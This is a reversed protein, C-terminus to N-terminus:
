PSFDVAVRAHLPDGTNGLRVTVTEIAGDIEVSEVAEITADFWTELNTSAEVRYVLGREAADSRRRYAIRLKGGSLSVPTAAEANSATNPDLDFAYELLNFLQDREPDGGPLADTGTLGHENAAWADYLQQPGSVPGLTYGLLEPSILMDSSDAGNNLGQIALINEGSTLLGAFESVDIDEFSTADGDPNQDSASSNWIPEGPNANRRALEIGNLWAIFGDDYKMRLVMRDISAPNTPTFPVRLYVTANRDFMATEFDLSNGILAEYGGNGTEYGAAFSGAEWFADDFGRDRWVTDISSANLPVFGRANAGEAVLVVPDGLETSFSRADPATTGGSHTAVLSHFYTRGPDLGTIPLNFSGPGRVGVSMSHDWASLNDGGDTRGWVFTVTPNEGGTVDVAGFLIASDETIASAANNSVEPPAPLAPTGISTATIQPLILMDSSTTSTNLGHIALLNAGPTLKDLDGTLDIDAFVQAAADDHNGTAESNWALTNPANRRAVEAGNLYAVFGDDYKMGLTLSGFSSPNSVTFPVRVYVTANIGDMAAEVDTEILSDYDGDTDYGVGTDGVAWASDNFATTFWTADNVASTPVLVRATTGEPLLVAQPTIRIEATDSLAPTGDDTARVVLVFQPNTGVSFANSNAITLFGNDPDLAFAGSTNGSEISLTLPRGEPDSATITTIVTGAPLNESASVFTNAIVPPENVDSVNISVTAVSTFGPHSDDTVAVTLAYGPTTEFDLQASDAVRIEGTSRNIAFVNGSNGGLVAFSTSDGDEDNAAIMGIVMGDTANEPVVFIQPSITPQFNEVTVRFFADISNGNSDTARVTLDTFGEADPAYDLVLQKPNGGSITVNDFLSTNSNNLVSFGLASDPDQGDQFVAFLDIMTDPANQHVLVDPIGISVPVGPGAGTYDITIQDVSTAEGDSATLQVTHAGPTSFTANTSLAAANSFSVTGPGNLMQWQLTVQGPNTPLGDDNVVPNLLGTNFVASGTAPRTDPM